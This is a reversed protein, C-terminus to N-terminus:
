RRGRGLLSAINRRGHLVRQIVIDSGDLRYFIVYDGVPHSRLGPRLENRERGIQPWDSLVRFRFREGISDLLRDAPAPVGSEQQIYEWIEELDACAALSVRFPM